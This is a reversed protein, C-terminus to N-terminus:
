LGLDTMYIVSKTFLYSSTMYVIATTSPIVTVLYIV